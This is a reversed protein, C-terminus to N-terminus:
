SYSRFNTKLAGVHHKRQLLLEEKQKLKSLNNLEVFHVLFEQERAVKGAYRMLELGCKRRRGVAGRLSCMVCLRSLRVLLVETDETAIFRTM